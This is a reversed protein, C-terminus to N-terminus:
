EKGYCCRFLLGNSFDAIGHTIGGTSRIMYKLRYGPLSGPGTMTDPCRFRFDFTVHDQHQDRCLVDSVFKFKSFDEVEIQYCFSLSCLHVVM